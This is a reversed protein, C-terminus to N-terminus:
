LTQSSGQQQCIALTTPGMVNLKAVYQKWYTASASKQMVLVHKNGSCGALVATMQLCAMSSTPFSITIM